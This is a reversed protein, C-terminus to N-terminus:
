SAAACSKASGTAVQTRWAGALTAAFAPSTAARSSALPAGPVLEGRRIAALLREAAAPPPEAPVLTGMGSAASATWAPDDLLFTPVGAEAAIWPALVLDAPDRRPGGVVMLADLAGIWHHLERALPRPRVAWGVGTEDVLTSVGEFLIERPDVVVREVAHSHVALAAINFGDRRASRGEVSSPGAVVLGMVVGTTSADIASRLLPRRLRSKEIAARTAAGAATPMRRIPELPWSGEAGMSDIWSSWGACEFGGERRRQLRARELGSPRREPVLVRAADTWGSDAVAIASAISWCIVSAIPAVAAVEALSRRMARGTPHALRDVRPLGSGGGTGILIEVHGYEALSDAADRVLLSRLSAFEVQEDLVHIVLLPSSM